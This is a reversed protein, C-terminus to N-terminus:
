DKAPKNKEAAVMVEEKPGCADTWWLRVEHPPGFGITAPRVSFEFEDFPRLDFPGVNDDLLLQVDPGLAQAKM